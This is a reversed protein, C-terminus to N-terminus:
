QRDISIGAFPGATPGLGYHRTRAVIGVCIAKLAQSLTRRAALRRGSPVGAVEPKVLRWNTRYGGRALSSSYRVQVILRSAGTTYSTKEHYYLSRNAYLDSPAAPLAEEQYEVVERAIVVSQELNM